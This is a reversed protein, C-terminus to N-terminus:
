YHFTDSVSVDSPSATFLWKKDGQCCLFFFNRSFNVNNKGNLTPSMKEHDPVFATRLAKGKFYLNKPTKKQFVM